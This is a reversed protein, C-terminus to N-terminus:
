LWLKEAKPMGKRARFEAAKLQKQVRPHLDNIVIVKDIDSLYWRPLGNVTVVMPLNEAIRQESMRKLDTMSVEHFM